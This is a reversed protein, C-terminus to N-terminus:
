RPLHRMSDRPFWHKYTEWDAGMIKPTKANVGKHDVRRELRKAERTIEEVHWYNEEKRRKKQWWLTKDKHKMHDGRQLRHKRLAAREEKRFKKDKIERLSPGKKEVMKFQAVNTEHSEDINYEFRFKMKKVDEWNKVGDAAKLGNMVALAKAVGMMLTGNNACPYCFHQDGIAYWRNAKGGKPLGTWYDIPRNPDKSGCATCRKTSIKVGMRKLMNRTELEQKKFELAMLEGETQADALEQAFDIDNKSRRFVASDVSEDSDSDSDSDSSVELDLDTGLEAGGEAQKPRKRVKVKGEEQERKIKEIRTEVVELPDKGGNKKMRRKREKKENREKTKKVVEEEFKKAELDEADKHFAHRKVQEEEREYGWKYVGMINTVGKTWGVATGPIKPKIIDAKNRSALEQETVNGQKTMKGGGYKKKVKDRLAVAAMSKILRRQMLKEEESIDMRALKKELDKRRARVEAEDIKQAKLDEAIKKDHEKKALKVKREEEKKEKREKKIRNGEAKERERFEMKEKKNMKMMMRTKELGADGGKEIDLGSYTTVAEKNVEEQIGKMIPTAHLEWLEMALQHNRQKRERYERISGVPKVVAELTNAMLPGAKAVLPASAKRAKKLVERVNGGLMSLSSRRPADSSSSDGEIQSGKKIISPLRM